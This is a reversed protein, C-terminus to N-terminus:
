SGAHRPRAVPALTTSVLSSAGSGIAFLAILKASGFRKILWSTPLAGLGFCLYSATAIQGLKLDGLGFEDDILTLVAPFILMYTHTLAHAVSTIGILSTERRNM